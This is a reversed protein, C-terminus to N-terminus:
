SVRITGLLDTHFQYLYTSIAWYTSCRVTLGDTTPEFGGILATLITTHRFAYARCVCGGTEPALFLSIFYPYQPLGGAQLCLHGKGLQRKTTRSWGSCCVALKNQLVVLDFDGSLMGYSSRTPWITPQVSPPRAKEIGWKSKYSLLNSRRVWLWYTGPELGPQDVLSQFFNRGTDVPIVITLRKM